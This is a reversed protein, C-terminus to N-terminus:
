ELSDPLVGVVKGGHEFATNMAHQDVGRAAGSIVPLEHAVGARAIDRAVEASEPGINRSGVVGIGPQHLLERDGMGHLVPPALGGLRDALRHPYNDSGATVTWIGRNEIQEIALALAAGRTLLRAIRNATEASVSLEQRIEASDRDWFW